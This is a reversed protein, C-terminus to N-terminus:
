NRISEIFWSKFCFMKKENLKLGSIDSFEELVSILTDFSERSGDTVFTADDAFLVNKVEIDNIKIGKIKENKAFLTQCYNM